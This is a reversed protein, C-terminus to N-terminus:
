SETTVPDEQPVPDEIEMKELNGALYERWLARVGERVADSENILYGRKLLFDVREKDMKAVWGQLKRDGNIVRPPRKPPQTEIETAQNM